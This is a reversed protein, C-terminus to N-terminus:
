PAASVTAALDGQLGTVTFGASGLLSLVTNDTLATATVTVTDTNFGDTISTAASGTTISIGNDTADGTTVTLAGTLSSATINGILGTVVDAASGVLTLATNQALATADVTVVDSAGSATISTAASGTTIGIGNDVADGTTVTLAGTLSGAAIDGVLGTM